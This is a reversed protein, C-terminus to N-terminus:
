RAAMGHILTLLRQRGEGSKSSYFLVTEERPMNLADRLRALAAPRQSLPVQDSKSAVWLIPLGLPRIWESLQRDSDGPDHRPDILVVAGRLTERRSLYGEVMGAWQNRVAKPVRAYGYGPLDVLAIPRSRPDVWVIRFFNVLQTKGPTRSVRALGKKGVLSNLLSSKGVNSRGVLAIEPIREPPFESPQVASKIFEVSQIRM